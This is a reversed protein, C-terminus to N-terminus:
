YALSDGSELPRTAAHYSSLLWRIGTKASFVCYPVRNRTSMEHACTSDRGSSCRRSSERSVSSSAPGAGHAQAERLRVVFHRRKELLNHQATCEMMLTQLMRSLLGPSKERIGHHEPAPYLNRRFHVRNRDSKFLFFWRSKFAAQSRTTPCSHRRNLTSEPSRGLFPLCHM